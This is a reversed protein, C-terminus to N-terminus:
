FRVKPARGASISLSPRALPQPFAQASDKGDGLSTGRPSPPMQQRSHMVPKLELRITIPARSLELSQRSSLDALTNKHAQMLRQARQTWHCRHESRRTKIKSSLADMERKQSKKYAELKKAVEVDTETESRAAEQRAFSDLIRQCRIAAAYNGTRALKGQQAQLSLMEKSSKMRQSVEARAQNEYERLADEHRARLEATIQRAREEFEVMNATWARNFEVAEAVHAELVGTKERVQQEAMEAKRRAEEAARIGNASFGAQAAPMFAGSSIKRKQFDKLVGLSYKILEAEDLVADEEQGRLVSKAISEEMLAQFRGFEIGGEVQPDVFFSWLREAENVNRGTCRLADLVDEKNALGSRERDFLAFIREAAGLWINGYRSTRTLESM